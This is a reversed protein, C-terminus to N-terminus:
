SLSKNALACDSPLTPREERWTRGIWLSYTLKVTASDLFSVTCAGKFKMSLLCLLLASEGKLQWM